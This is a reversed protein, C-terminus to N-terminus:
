TLSELKNYLNILNFEYMGLESSPKTIINALENLLDNNLGETVAEKQLIAVKTDFEKVSGGSLFIVYLFYLM